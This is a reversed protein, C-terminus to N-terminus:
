ITEATISASLQILQAHSAPWPETIGREKLLANQAREAPLPQTLRRPPRTHALSAALTNVFMEDFPAAQLGQGNTCRRTCLLRGPATLSRKM